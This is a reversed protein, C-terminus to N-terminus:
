RPGSSSTIFCIITTVVLLQLRLLKSSITSFNSVAVSSSDPEEQDSSPAPAAAMSSLIRQDHLRWNDHQRQKQKEQELEVSQYVEALAFEM